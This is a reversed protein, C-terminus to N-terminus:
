ITYIPSRQIAPIVGYSRELTVNLNGATSFLDAHLNLFFDVRKSHLM